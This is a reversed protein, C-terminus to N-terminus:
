HNFTENLDGNRLNVYNSIDQMTKCPSHITVFSGGNPLNGITLGYEKGYYLQLRKDINVLGYSNNTNIKIMLSEDKSNFIRIFEESFGNGNDKITIYYDNNEIRGFIGIMGREKIQSTGYLISNEIIPQITLKPIVYDMMQSPIDILYIIKDQFRLKQIFLYQNIYELDGKLTFFANGKISLRMLTGLITLAQKADNNRNESILGSICNLTNYLFHPNIQAQYAKIQADKTLLEEMYVKENLLHIRVLMENYVAALDNFEDNTPIHILANDNIVSTEKCKNIFLQFEKSISSSVVFIVIIIFIISLFILLLQLKFLQATSKYLETENLIQMIYYNSYKLQQIICSYKQKDRTLKKSHILRQIDNYTFSDNYIIPVNKDDLLIFSAYDMDKNNLISTIQSMYIEVAFVGLSNNNNEINNSDWKYVNRTITIIDPNNSDYSLYMKGHYLDNLSQLKTFRDILNTRKKLSLSSPSILVQNKATLFYTNRVMSDNNFLAYSEIKDTIKNYITQFDSQSQVTNIKEFDSQIQIGYLLVNSNKYFENLYNNISSAKEKIIEDAQNIVTEKTANHEFYFIGIAIVLYSLALIPLVVLLYRYKIRLKNFMLGNAM